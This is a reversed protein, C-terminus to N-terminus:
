WSCTYIKSKGMNCSRCSSKMIANDTDRM